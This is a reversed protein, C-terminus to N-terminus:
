KPVLGEEIGTVLNSFYKKTINVRDRLQALDIKDISDGLLECLRETIGEANGQLYEFFDRMAPSAGDSEMFFGYVYTYKLVNRCEIALRFADDVAAVAAAPVAATATAAAHMKAAQTELERRASDHNFYRTYYHQYRESSKLYSAAWDDIKKAESKDYRNCSYFGGTHQGHTAWDGRCMWCWQGGCKSCTMHNCGKNRETPWGCHFCPKTTARIMKLSEDDNSMREQWRALQECTAPNHKEQGCHFCFRAGCECEVVAAGAPVAGRCHIVRGCQPNVCFVCQKGQEVFDKLLFYWYRECVEPVALREWATYPVVAVCDPTMCTAKVCNAGLTDLSTKLHGQWCDACFRHGCGLAFTEFYPVDEMCVACEFEEPEEEDEEQSGGKPSVVVGAAANYKSPDDFYKNQFREVSWQFLRLLLSAEGLGVELMGAVQGVESLFLEKVQDKELVEFRKEEEETVEDLFWEDRDYVEDKEDEKLPEEQGNTVVSGM